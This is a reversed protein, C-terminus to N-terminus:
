AIDIARDGGGVAITTGTLVLLYMSGVRGGDEMEGEM